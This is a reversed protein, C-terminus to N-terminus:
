AWSGRCQKIRTPKQHKSIAAKPTLAISKFVIRMSSVKWEGFVTSFMRSVVMFNAISWMRTSCVLPRCDAQPQFPARRDGIQLEEVSCPNSGLKRHLYTSIPMGLSKSLKNAPCPCIVPGFLSPLEVFTHRWFRLIPSILKSYLM